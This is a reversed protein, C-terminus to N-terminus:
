NIRSPFEGKSAQIISDSWQRANRQIAERTPWANEPIAAVNGKYKFFQESEAEFGYGQIGGKEAMHILTKRDHTDQAIYIDVFFGKPNM